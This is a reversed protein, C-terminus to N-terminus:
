REGGEGACPLEESELLKNSRNVRSAGWAGCLMWFVPAGVGATMVAGLVLLGMLVIFDSWSRLYVGVGIPGFLFGAFFAVIASRGAGVPPLKDSEKFARSVVHNYQSNM